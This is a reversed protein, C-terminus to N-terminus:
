IYLDYTKEKPKQISLFFFSFMASFSLLFFPIQCKSFFFLIGEDPPATSEVTIDIFGISILGANLCGDVPIVVVPIVTGSSRSIKLTFGERRIMANLYCTKRENPMAHNYSLHLFIEVIYKSYQYMM